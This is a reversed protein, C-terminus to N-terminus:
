SYEQLHKRMRTASRCREFFSPEPPYNILFQESVNYWSTEACVLQLAAQQMEYTFGHYFENDPGNFLKFFLNKLEIPLSKTM